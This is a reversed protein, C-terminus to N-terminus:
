FSRQWKNIRNVSINWRCFRWWYETSDLATGGWLLTCSEDIALTITSNNQLNSPTITAVGSNQNILYKIEGKETGDGM